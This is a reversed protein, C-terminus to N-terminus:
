KEIQEEYMQKQTEIEKRLEQVMRQLSELEDEGSIKKGPGTESNLSALSDRKSDCAQPSLTSAEDGPSGPQTPVNDYTSTRQSDFLQPVGQSMTRRHGDGAKAESSSSWFESKFIETKCSNAGQLASTLFCKRNPLTQTRKRSQPKWDGPKDRSAKDELCGDNPQPGTPSTADSDSAQFFFFAMSTVHTKTVHTMNEPYPHSVQFFTDGPHADIFSWFVMEKIEKTNEKNNYKLNSSLYKVINHHDKGCMFM